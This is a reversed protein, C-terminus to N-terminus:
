RLFTNDKTIISLDTIDLGTHDEPSFGLTMNGLDLREMSNLARLVSARTPNSGAARLAAVAVKAGAFGELMGPTLAVGNREALRWAERVFGNMYDKEGPFVQTVIVGRANPGLMKIFATSANNSLTAIKAQSGAQRLAAVANKVALGAGVVIIGEPDAQKLLPLAPEMFATGDKLATERDYAVVAAPEIGSAKFGERLGALVDRGFGDAVHLIAIKRLGSLHLLNVLKRAEVQYPTRVNFVYPNVPQHFVMAGTSPGILAVKHEAVLPLIAENHPTGRVLLLALVGDEVILKRVVAVTRDVKFDDNRAVLVIKRGGVGGQENVANVYMEAGKVLELMSGANSGELPGSIGLRLPQASALGAGLFALVAPVLLAYMRARVPSPSMAQEMNSRRQPRRVTRAAVGRDTAAPTTALTICRRPGFRWGAAPPRISPLIAGMFPMSKRLSVTVRGEAAM